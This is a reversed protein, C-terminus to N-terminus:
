SAFIIEINNIIVYLTLSKFVKHLLRDICVRTNTLYVYFHEDYLLYNLSHQYYALVLYGIETETGFVSHDVFIEFDNELIKGIGFFKLILILGYVQRM